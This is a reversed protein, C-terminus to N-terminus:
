NSSSVLVVEGMPNGMGPFVCWLLFRVNHVAQHATSLEAGTQPVPFQPNL